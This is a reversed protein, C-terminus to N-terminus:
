APPLTVACSLLANTSNGSMPAAACGAGYCLQLIHGAPCKAPTDTDAGWQWCPKDTTGPGAASCNPVPDDHFATTSLTTRLVVDCDPSGDAKSTVKGNVCQVGLKEGIKMAIQQLAPQFDDACIPLFVGNMDNVLKLERVGPDAYEGAAQMCSHSIEPQPETGGTSLQATHVKVVYPNTSDDYPGGIIAVFPKNDAGKLTTLFSVFDAVPTLHYLGATDEKSVCGTLTMPLGAVGHPLPPKCTHGFENCRYSWLGGLPPQDSLASVSTDFLQSDAPVSCDDENTLMVIGLFADARLFGGNDPDNPFSAKILAQRTSEFQHEFGCGQDGLLAICKFVDQIQGTFNNTTGDQSAKIYTENPNLGCGAKHQFKGGDDGPAGPACGPVDRFAGAGLSSSIVAVHLDPLGGPLTQLRQMFDPLRATMKAQLPSMSSSDDVMFLLDLKHNQSQLVRAQVVQSPSGDPAKLKRTNCAWLAPVVAACLVWRLNRWRLPASFRTMPIRRPITRSLM